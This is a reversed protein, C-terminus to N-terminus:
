TKAPIHPACKTSSLSQTPMKRKKVVAESYLSASFSTNDEVAELLVKLVQM